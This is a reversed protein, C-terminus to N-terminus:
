AKEVYKHAEKLPQVDEDLGIGILLLGISFLIISVDSAWWWSEYFRLRMCALNLLTMSIMVLCFNATFRKSLSAFQGLILNGSGRYDKPRLLYANRFAMTALACALWLESLSHWYVGISWQILPVLLVIPLVPLALTTDAFIMVLKDSWSKSYRAFFGLVLGIFTAPAAIQVSFIIMTRVRGLIQALIWSTTILPALVVIVVFFAVIVLGAVLSKRRLMRKVASNLPEHKNSQSLKEKTESKTAVKRNLDERPGSRQQVFDLLISIYGLIVAIALLMIFAGVAMTIDSVYTSRVLQYGLGPLMFTWEILVVASIICAFDTTTLPLLLRKLTKKSTFTSSDSWVIFFSRITFIITLTFLPLALHRLRVAIEVFINEPPHVLWYDPVTHGSPFWDLYFSFLFILILGTIATLGFFFGKQSHASTLPKRSKPKFKLAISSFVVGTATSVATSLCILLITIQLRGALLNSWVSESSALSYGLNGQFLASLFSGLNKLRASEEAVVAPSLPERRALDLIAQSYAFYLWAVLAFFLITLAILKFILHSERRFFAM